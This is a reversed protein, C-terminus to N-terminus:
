LARDGADAPVPQLAGGTQVDPAGELEIDSRRWFDAVHRGHEAEIADYGIAAARDLTREARTALAGAGWHYAVYKSLRLSEGAALEALVVVHAGDGEADADAHVTVDAASEIEHAM